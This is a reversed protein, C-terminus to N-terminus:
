SLRCLTEQQIEYNAFSIIDGIALNVPLELLKIGKDLRVSNHGALSGTIIAETHGVFLGSKEGACLLVAGMSAAMGTCITSVDPSIYQMTDYIGLGAYM